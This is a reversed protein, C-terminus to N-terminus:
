EPASTQSPHKWTPPSSRTRSANGTPSLAALPMPRIWCMSESVAGDPVGWIFALEIPIAPQLSPYPSGDSIVAVTLPKDDMDAIGRPRINDAAGIDSITSVPKDWVNEVTARIVLLRNGTEPTIFAEPFADILVADEVAIRLQAGTFAEGVDLQPVPPADAEELGGFAASAALFLALGATVFWRTPV